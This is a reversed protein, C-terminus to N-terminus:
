PSSPSSQLPKWMSSLDASSSCLGAGKELTALGTDFIHRIWESRMRHGSIRRTAEYMNAVADIRDLTYPSVRIDIRKSLSHDDM